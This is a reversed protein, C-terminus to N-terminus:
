WFAVAFAIEKIEEALLRNIVALARAVVAVVGLRRRDVGHVTDCKRGVFLEMSLQGGLDVRLGPGLVILTPKGNRGVADLLPM